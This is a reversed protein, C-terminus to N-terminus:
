KRLELPPDLHRELMDRVEPSLWPADPIVFVMGSENNALYIATYFGDKLTIGEWLWDLDLFTTGDNYLDDLPGDLDSEELLVIWGYDEYNYVGDEDSYASILQDILEKIVPHAPDSSPLQGLDNRSKFHLM